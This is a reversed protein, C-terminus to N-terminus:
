CLQLVVDFCAEVPRLVPWVCEGFVKTSCDQQRVVSLKYLRGSWLCPRCVQVTNYVYVPLCQGAPWAAVGKDNLHKFSRGAVCTLCVPVCTCMYM